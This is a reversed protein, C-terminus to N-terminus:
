KLIKTKKIINFHTEWPHHQLYAELVQQLPNDDLTPHSVAAHNKGPKRLSM